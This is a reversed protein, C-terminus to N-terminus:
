LYYLWVLSNMPTSLGYGTLQLFHEAKTRILRQEVNFHHNFTKTMGNLVSLKQVVKFLHFCM